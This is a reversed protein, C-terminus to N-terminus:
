SPPRHQRRATPEPVVESHVAGNATLTATIPRLGPVSSAVSSPLQGTCSLSLTRPVTRVVPVSGRRSVTVATSQRRGAGVVASTKGGHEVAAQDEKHVATMTRCDEDTVPSCQADGSSQRGSDQGMSMAATESLVPCSGMEAAASPAKEDPVVPLVPPLSLGAPEVSSSVPLAAPVVSSSVPLAAPVVSSSVPLAAPEVSSSVPLAAPVVSFSVPLAAAPVVSSSVPLAAMKVSCSVPLPAPVVASPCPLVPSPTPFSPDYPTRVLYTVLAGKGKVQISGRCDLRYGAELLIQATRETVQGACFPPTITPTPQTDHLASM